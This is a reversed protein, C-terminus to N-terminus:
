LYIENMEMLATSLEQGSAQCVNEFCLCVRVLGFFYVGESFNVSPFMAVHGILM